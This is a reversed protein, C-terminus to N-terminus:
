DAADLETVNVDRLFDGVLLDLLVDSLGCDDSGWSHVNISTVLTGWDQVLAGVISGVEVGVDAVVAIRLAVSVLRRARCIAVSTSCTTISSVILSVDSVSCRGWDVSTSMTSVNNSSRGMTSVSTSMNNSSCRGMTSVSSNGWGM